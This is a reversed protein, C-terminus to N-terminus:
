QTDFTESYACYFLASVSAMVALFLPTTSTLLAPTVDIQLLHRMLRSLPGLAVPLLCLLAGITPMTARASEQWLNQKPLRQLVQLTFGNDDLPTHKDSLTRTLLDDIDDRDVSM